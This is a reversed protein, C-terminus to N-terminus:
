TADPTKEQKRFEGPTMGTNQRFWRLFAQHSSFGLHGAIDNISDRTDRLRQCAIDHRVADLLERYSSGADQLKRHLSRGSIGLQAAIAEKAPIGDIIMVKILHKVEDALSVETSRQRLLALAHRELLERIVADGHPLKLKLSTLPVILSSYPKSFYVPAQFFSFYERTRRLDDPRAHVFNVAKVLEKHDPLLLRSIVVFAGLVYETAQRQFLPSGTSCAWRIEATGPAFHLSTTGINSLLGSYRVVVEIVDAFTSCSQFIYGLAGFTAPQIDSALHLGVLPDPFRKSLSALMAEVATMPILGDADALNARSLGAEDLLEDVRVGAAEGRTIMHQLHRVSIWALAPNKVTNPM